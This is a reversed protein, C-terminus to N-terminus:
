RPFAESQMMGGPEEAARVFYQRRAFKVPNPGGKELQGM